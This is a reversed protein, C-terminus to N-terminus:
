VVSKRDRSRIAYADMKETILGIASRLKPRDAAFCWSFVPDILEYRRLNEFLRVLLSLLLVYHTQLAFLLPLPPGGDPIGLKRMLARLPALLRNEAPGWLQSFLQQWRSYIGEERTIAEYLQVLCQRTLPARIGFDQALNEGSLSRSSSSLDHFSASEIM